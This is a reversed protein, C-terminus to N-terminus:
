TQDQFGSYIHWMGYIALHNGTPRLDMHQYMATIHEPITTYQRSFALSSFIRHIYWSKTHEPITLYKSAGHQIHEPINKHQWIIPFPCSTVQLKYALSYYYIALNNGTPRLNRHQCM